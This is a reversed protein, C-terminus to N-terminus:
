RLTPRNSAKKESISLAAELCHLAESTRGLKELAAAKKALAGAHEPQTALLKEFFELAKQPQKADLLKQGAALIDPSTEPAAAALLRSGGELTEIKRELQSVVDLLRASSTEVTARGPAALQQVASAQALAAHQQSSIQAIQSFARWQFYVMFMLISLGILGFAGTVLLTLQQTKRATEAEATRQAAVTQELAQLRAALVEANKRSEDSVTLRNEEIALRTAHLQEQIQLYGNAAADNTATLNTQAPAASALFAVTLILAYILKM